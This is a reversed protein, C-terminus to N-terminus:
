FVRWTSQGRLAVEYGARVNVKAFNLIFRAYAAAYATATLNGVRLVPKSEPRGASAVARGTPKGNAKARGEFALKKPPYSSDM